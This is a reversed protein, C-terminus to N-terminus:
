FFKVIRIASLMENLADMRIDKTNMIGQFLKMVASFLLAPIPLTVLMFTAGIIATVGLLYYLQTTAMLFQLPFGYFEYLYCFTDEMKKIDVAVLNSINIPKKEDDEDDGGSESKDKKDDKAHSSVDKRRISKEFVATNCISTVHVFIRRGIHCSQQLCISELLTSVLLAFVWIYNNLTPAGCDQCEIYKVIKNLCYPAVLPLLLAPTGWVHQLFLDFQIAAFLSRYFTKKKNLKFQRVTTHSEDTVELYPLDNDQLPRKFGLYVLSNVWSFTLQDYASSVFEPASPRVIEGQKLKRPSTLPQYPLTLLSIWLLLAGTLWIAAELKLRLPWDALPLNLIDSQVLQVTSLATTLLYFLDLQLRIWFQHAVAPRILYVLSLALAYVWSAARFSDGLLSYYSSSSSSWFLSDQDTLHFLILSYLALGLQASTVVSRALHLSLDSTRRAQYRAQASDLAGTPDSDVLTASRHHDSDVPGEQDDHDLTNRIPEYQDLHIPKRSLYVLVLASALSYALPLSPEILEVPFTM